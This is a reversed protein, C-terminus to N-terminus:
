LVFKRNRLQHHHFHGIHQGVCHIGHAGLRQPAGSASISSSRRWAGRNFQAGLVL